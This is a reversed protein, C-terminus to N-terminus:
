SVGWFSDARSVPGPARPLLSARGLLCGSTLRGPACHGPSPLNSGKPPAGFRTQGPFSPQEGQSAGWLSDARPLSAWPGSTAKLGLPSPKPAPPDRQWSEQDKIPGPAGWAGPRLYWTGPGLGPSLELAWSAPSTAGISLSPSCYWFCLACSPGPILCAYITPVPGFIGPFIEPFTKQLQKPQQLNRPLTKPTKKSNSINKPPREFARRTTRGGVM